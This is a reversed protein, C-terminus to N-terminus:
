QFRLVNAHTRKLHKLHNRRAFCYAGFQLSEGTITEYIYTSTAVIAAGGVIYDVLPYHKCSANSQPMWVKELAKQWRRWTSANIHLYYKMMWRWRWHWPTPVPKERPVFFGKDRDRRTRVREDKYQRVLLNHMRMNSEWLEGCPTVRLSCFFFIYYYRTHCSTSTTNKGNCFASEARCTCVSPDAVCICLALVSIFMETAITWLM